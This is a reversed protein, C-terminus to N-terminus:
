RYDSHNWNGKGHNCDSCLIQLNNIDLSLEPFYKRPKIHDVNLIAGSKPSAGCSVCVHGYKDLAKLRLRRWEFSFLFDNEKSGDQRKYPKIKWPKLEEIKKNQYTQFVAIAEEPTKTKKM